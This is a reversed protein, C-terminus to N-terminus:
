VAQPLPVEVTFRSGQGPSSRVSIRGHMREVLGKVISLGLGTGGYRRAISTDVQTYPQFLRQMQEENMGIGTDDITFRVQTADVAEVHLSVTGTTTFKLANGLLNTLVQRLRLPDGIRRAACGPAIGHVLEVAHRPQGARTSVCVERMLRDLDFAISEITMREAALKSFDLLDNVIHILSRASSQIMACYDRDRETTQTEQLMESLGLIGNLPTRLEHSVRSIFASKVKNASEAHRIALRLENELDERIMEIAVRQACLRLIGALEEPQTIPRTDILWILGIQRGSADDLRMGLYSEANLKILIEDEPYRGQVGHPIHCYSQASTADCPSGCLDYAALQAQRGEHWAAIPTARPPAASGDSRAIVATHMGLGEALIRVLGTYLNAGTSSSACQCIDRILADYAVTPNTGPEM